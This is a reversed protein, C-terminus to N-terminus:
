SPYSVEAAWSARPQTHLTWYLDAIDEVDLAKLGQLVGRITVSSVQV